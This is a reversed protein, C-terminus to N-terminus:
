RQEGIADEVKKDRAVWPNIRELKAKRSRSSKVGEVPIKESKGSGYM